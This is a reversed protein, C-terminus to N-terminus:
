RQRTGVALPLDPDFEAAFTRIRSAEMLYTASAFHQGVPLDGLYLDGIPKGPM